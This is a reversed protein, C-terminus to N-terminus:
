YRLIRLSYAPLPRGTLLRSECSSCGISCSRSVVSGMSLEEVKIDDAIVKPKVGRNLASDMLARADEHFAASFEPWQFRFSM